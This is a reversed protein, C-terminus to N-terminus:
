KQRVYLWYPVAAKTVKLLIRYAKNKSFDNDWGVTTALKGGGDIWRNDDDKKWLFDLPDFVHLEITEVIGAPRQPLSVELTPTSQKNSGITIGSSSPFNSDTDFNLPLMAAGVRLVYTCNTAAAASGLLLGAISGDTDPPLMIGNTSISKIASGDYHFAAAEQMCAIGADEGADTPIGEVKIKTADAQWINDIKFTKGVVVTTATPASLFTWHEGVQLLVQNHATNQTNYTLKTKNARLSSQWDLDKQEQWTTGGDVSAFLRATDAPKKGLGVQLEDGTDDRRQWKGLFKILGAAKNNEAIAITASSTGIQLKCDASPQTRSIFFIGAADGNTNTTAGKKLSNGQLQYLAVGAAACASSLKLTTDAQAGKIDIKENTILKDPLGPQDSTALENKNGGDGCASLVLLLLLPICFIKQLM